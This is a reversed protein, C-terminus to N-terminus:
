WLSKSQKGVFMLQKSHSCAYTHPHEATNGALKSFCEDCYTGPSIVNAAIAMKQHKTEKHNEYALWLFLPALVPILPLLFLFVLLYRGWIALAIGAVISELKM